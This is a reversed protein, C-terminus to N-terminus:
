KILRMFKKGMNQVSLRDKDEASINYPSTYIQSLKQSLEDINQPTVLGQKLQNSNLQWTIGNSVEYAVVPTGLILSEAITLPSGETKSSSIFVHSQQIFRAPQKQWGLFDVRHSIDLRDCLQQLQEFMSGDGVIAMRGKLNSQAFAQIAHQPQKEASLRGVFICDWKKDVTSLMNHHIRQPDIGNHITIIKSHPIYPQCLDNLEQNVTIINKNDMYLPFYKRVLYLRRIERYWRFINKTPQKIPNFMVGHMWFWINDHKPLAPYTHYAYWHTLIILDPQIRSILNQINIKENLQFLHKRNKWLKGRMFNKNVDLNIQEINNPITMRIDTSDLLAISVVIDHKAMYVALDLMVQEAGGGKLHDIIFLVKKMLSIDKM